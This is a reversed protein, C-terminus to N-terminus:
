KSVCVRVYASVCVDVCVNVSVYVHMCENKNVCGFVSM